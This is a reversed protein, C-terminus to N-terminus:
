SLKSRETTPKSSKPVERDNNKLAEMIKDQFEKGTDSFALFGTLIGFLFGNM